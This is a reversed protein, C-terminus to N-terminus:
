SSWSYAMLGQSRGNMGETRRKVAIIETSILGERGFPEPRGVEFVMSNGRLLRRIKVTSM